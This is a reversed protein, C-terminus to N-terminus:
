VYKYYLISLLEKIRKCFYSIEILELLNDYHAFQAFHVM